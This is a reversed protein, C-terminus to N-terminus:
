NKKSNYVPIGYIVTAAGILFKLRCRRRALVLSQSLSLSLETNKTEFKNERSQRQNNNNFLLNMKYYPSSENNEITTSSLIDWEELLGQTLRDIDRDTVDWLNAVLAPCLGLIYNISNGTPDYDGSSKLLGSSCGMLLTVACKTKIHNRITRGKIYCEGGGHGFYMFLQYNNLGDLYENETPAKGSMGLWKKKDEFQSQFKNQTNILDGGPNLIYYASDSNITYKDRYFDNKSHNEYNMLLIRDRLLSLSLIRSTPKDHLIPFNEWPIIETQKDPIIIIHEDFDYFNLNEFKQLLNRFIRVYMDIDIMNYDVKIGYSQYYDLFYYIVDELECDLAEDKLYLFCDCINSDFELLTDQKLIMEGIFKELEKKFLLREKKYKKMMPCLIGKFGGIWSVEMKILLEELHRDLDIRENWWNAKEESTINNVKEDETYSSYQTMETNNNEKYLLTRLYTLGKEFEFYTSKKHSIHRKIPIHFILPKM